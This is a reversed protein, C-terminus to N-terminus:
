PVPLLWSGSVRLRLTTLSWQSLALLQSCTTTTTGPPLSIKPEVIDSIPKGPEREEREGTYGPLSRSQEACAPYLGTPSSVPDRGLCSWWPATSCVRLSGTAAAGPAPFTRLLKQHLPSRGSPGLTLLWGRPM